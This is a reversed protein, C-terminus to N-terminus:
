RKAILIQPKPEVPPPTAPQPTAPTPPAATASATAGAVEAAQEIVKLLQDAADARGDERLDEALHRMWEVLQPSLAKRNAELLKRTEDPYPLSLLTNVFRVEPPQAAAIARSITEAVAQLRDFTAQQQAQQASQLNMDLVSFFLEDLENLHARVAQDLNESAMIERLLAAREDFAAKTTADLKERLALIERRLEVLRDAEVKNGAANAAEIKATLAQFFPYDLLPRGFTLLLERTELDSTQVLQELLTDRDPKAQFAELVVRQAQVKKGVTTLELLKNYFAMMQSFAEQDRGAQASALAANILQLFTMDIDADRERILAEQAAGDTTELMQQLLRLKAEQAEIMEKTVGDAELIADLMSQLTFFQKPTLLYGKRKEAPIRSMVANTLQGIFRQQETDKLGLQMPLFVLALEKAPDHYLFPLTLAGSNHCTPCTFANLRGALLASKLAPEEAVDVIQRVPVTIQARCFPCTIPTPTPAFPM